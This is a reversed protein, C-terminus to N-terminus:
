LILKEIKDRSDPDLIMKNRNNLYWAKVDPTGNAKGAGRWDSVMEKIYKDPIRVPVFENNEGVCVWYQWHHKNRSTHYFWARKFAENETDLPNYSGTKDRIGKKSGDKNFFHFAYPFFEDPTFKSMDHLLGRVPIGMKSCELFVYWKHKVTYSFHSWCQRIM